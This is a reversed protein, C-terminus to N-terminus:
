TNSVKINSILLHQYLNREIFYLKALGSLSGNCGYKSTKLLESICAILIFQVRMLIVSRRYEIINSFFM